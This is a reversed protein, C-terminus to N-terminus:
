QISIAGNVDHDSLCKFYALELPTLNELIITTATASTSGEKIWLQGDIDVVEISTVEGACAAIMYGDGLYVDNDIVIKPGSKSTTNGNTNLRKVLLKNDLSSLFTNTDKLLYNDLYKVGKENTVKLISKGKVTVPEIKSLKNSININTKTDPTNEINNDQECSHLLALIVVSYVIAKFSIKNKM